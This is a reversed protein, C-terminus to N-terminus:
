KWTWSKALEQIIADGNDQPIVFSISFVQVDGTSTSYPSAAQTVLLAKTKTLAKTSQVRTLNAPTGDLTVPEKLSIVTGLQPIYSQNLYDVIGDISGDTGWGTSTSTHIPEITVTGLIEGVGTVTM